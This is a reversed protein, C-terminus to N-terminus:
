EEFENIESLKEEKDEDTESYSNNLIRKFSPYFNSINFQIFAKFDTENLHYSFRIINNLCEPLFVSLIKAGIKPSSEPVKYIYDTSRNGNSRLNWKVKFQEFNSLFRHLIKGSMIKHCFAMRRFFRNLKIHNQVM